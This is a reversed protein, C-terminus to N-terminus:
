TFIKPCLQQSGLWHSIHMRPCAELGQQRSPPRGKRRRHLLKFRISAPAPRHSQCMSRSSIGIFRWPKHSPNLFVMRLLSCLRKPFRQSLLPYNNHSKQHFASTHGSWLRSLNGNFGPYSHLRAWLRRPRIMWLSCITLGLAWCVGRSRRLSQLCSGCGTTSVVIHPSWAVCSCICTSPM